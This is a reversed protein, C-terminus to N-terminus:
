PQLSLCVLDIEAPPPPGLPLVNPGPINPWVQSFTWVNGDLEYRSGTGTPADPYQPGLTYAGSSAIVLEGPLCSASLRQDGQDYLIEFVKTRVEAHFKPVPGLPGRIGQPGQTGQPGQLGGPGAPGQLGLSAPDIRRESRLCNATERVTVTDDKARCLIAGQAGSMWGSALLVFAGLAQYASRM